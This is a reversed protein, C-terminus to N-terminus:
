AKKAAGQATGQATSFYKLAVPQIGPQRSPQNKRTLYTRQTLKKLHVSKFTNM